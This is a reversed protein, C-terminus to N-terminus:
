QGNTFVALDGTFELLTNAYPVARAPRYSYYDHWYGYHRVYHGPVVYAGQYNMGQTAANIIADAGKKRAISKAEELLGDPTVGDSAYGQVEVKGIVRYAQTAPLRQAASYIDMYYTGPKPPFHQQTYAFYRSSTACGALFVAAIVIPLIRKM